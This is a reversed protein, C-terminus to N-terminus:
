LLALFIVMSSDHTLNQGKLYCWPSGSSMQIPDWPDLHSHCFPEAQGTRPLPSFSPIDQVPFLFSFPMPLKLHIQKEKETEPRESSFPLEMSKLKVTTGTLM